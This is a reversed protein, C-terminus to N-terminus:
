FVGLRLFLFYNCIIYFSRNFFKVIKIFCFIFVWMCIYSLSIKICEDLMNFFFMFFNCFFIIVENVIDIVVM